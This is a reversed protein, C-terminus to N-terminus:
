PTLRITDEPTEVIRGVSRQFVLIQQDVTWSLSAPRVLLATFVRELHKGNETCDKAVLFALRQL